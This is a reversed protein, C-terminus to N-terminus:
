STVCAHLLLEVDDRSGSRSRCRRRRRAHDHRRRASGVGGIQERVQTSPASSGARRSVDRPRRRRACRAALQRAAARVPARPRTRGRRVVRVARAHAVGDGSRPRGDRVGRRARRATGPVRRTTWTWCTNWGDAHAAVIGCCGIARGASSCVRDRSSCRRPCTAPTSRAITSATTAHVPRRRATGERSRGRRVPPRAARGARPMKMGIATTSPNTGARASVSTSGAAASATSRRSRRPSCRRRGCRRAAAGAHRAARRARAPRACGVDRDSRLLRRPETSGGYKGLDLFLHDSLWVSDAGGRAALQAYDVITEFRLPREGAVSYDYQPLALGFHM